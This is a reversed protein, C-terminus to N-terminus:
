VTIKAPGKAERGGVVREGINPGGINIIERSVGVKTLRGTTIREIHM